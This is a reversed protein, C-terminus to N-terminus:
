WERTMGRGNNTKKELVADVLERFAGRGGCTKTVFNASDKVYEPVTCFCADWERRRRLVVQAMSVCFPVRELQDYSRTRWLMPCSKKCLVEPVDSVTVSVGCMGFVEMDPVDDGIFAVEEPHVGCREMIRTLAARKDLQELVAEIIGQDEIRKRLALCDRGSLIAVQIGAKQLLRFGLGDRANANFRKLCEGDSGYYLSGDTLVGDVDTVVLKVHKLRELAEARRRERIVTRVRKLDEETDAGVGM